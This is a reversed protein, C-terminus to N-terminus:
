PTFLFHTHICTHPFPLTLISPPTPCWTPHSVKLVSFMLSMHCSFRAMSFQTCSYNCSLMLSECFNYTSVFSSGTVWLIMLVSIVSIFDM